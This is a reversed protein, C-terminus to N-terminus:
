LILMADGYSYFRYERRIAEQYASLVTETRGFACVLALLTTRPLHFNTVLGRVIQFEYGPTILLDTWGHGATVTGDKASAELTRVSTTGVAIVRNGQALTHNIDDAAQEEIRYEETHMPHEEMTETEVPAFTGLGVHLTVRAIRVGMAEISELMEHNFHLGATPAAVSGPPAAYVTQYRERDVAERQLHKRRIYPPLPTIGYRDLISCTDEETEPQVIWVGRAQKDLVRLGIPTGPNSPAEESPRYLTLIEKARLRSANKLMVQWAGEQTLRLFLGEIKGGTQRRAFFRAPIVRSNNVVLCDGAKLYEPLAQFRSHFIGERNRDLVLLRSQARESLGEQAILREPLTYDLESVKMAQLNDSRIRM